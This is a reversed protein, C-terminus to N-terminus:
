FIKFILVSTKATGVLKSNSWLAVTFKCSFRPVATNNHVPLQQKFVCGILTALVAVYKSVHWKCRQMGPVPFALSTKPRAGILARM